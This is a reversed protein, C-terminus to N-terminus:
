SVGERVVVRGGEKGRKGESRGERCTGEGGAEVLMVAGREEGSLEDSVRYKGSFEADIDELSRGRTEPM